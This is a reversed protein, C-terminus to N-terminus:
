LLFRAQIVALWAGAARSPRVGRSPRDLCEVSSRECCGALRREHVFVLLRELLADDGELLDDLGGEPSAWCLGAAAVLLDVGMVVWLQQLAERIGVLTRGPGVVAADQVVEEGVDDIGRHDHGGVILEIHVELGSPGVLDGENVQQDTHSSHVDLCTMDELLLVVAGDHLGDEHHDGIAHRAKILLPRTRVLGLGALSGITLMGIHQLEELAFTGADLLVQSLMM